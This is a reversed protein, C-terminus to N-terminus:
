KQASQNSTLFSLGLLNTRFKQRIVKTSGVASMLFINRVGGIRQIMLTIRILNLVHIALLLTYWFWLFLFIYQALSNAGLICYYNTVDNNGGSGQWKLTCEARRPFTRFLIEERNMKDKSPGKNDHIETYNIKGSPAAAWDPGLNFFYGDLVKDNFWFVLTINIILMVQHSFVHYM